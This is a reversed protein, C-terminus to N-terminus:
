NEGILTTAQIQYFGVQQAAFTTAFVFYTFDQEIQFSVATETGPEGRSEVIANGLQDLVALYPVFQPTNLNSDSRMGITVSTGVVAGELAYPESYYNGDFDSDATLEGLLPDSGLPLQLAGGPLRIRPFHFLFQGKSGALDPEMASLEFTYTTGPDAAPVFPVTLSRTGLQGAEVIVEGTQVNIIRLRPSFDEARYHLTTLHGPALTGPDIERVFRPPAPPDTTDAQRRLQGQFYFGDEDRRAFAATFQAAPELQLRMFEGTAPPNPVAPQSPRIYVRERGNGTPIVEITGGTIGEDNWLLLDRSRMLRYTLGTDGSPRSFVFEFPSLQASSFPARRVVPSVQASPIDPDSGYAFEFYNSLGDHDRDENLLPAHFRDIWQAYQPHVHRLIWARHFLISTASSYFGASGCPRAGQSLVGALAWAHPAASRRVVLPGGSDGSCSGLSGDAVGAPLADAGLFVGQVKWLASALEMEVLPLDSQQLQDPREGSGATAGWGFIRGIAGPITSVPDDLLPVCPIDVIPEELRLLALDGVAEGNRSFLYLPHVIIDAVAVRRINIDAISSLDHTGCVVDIDQIRPSAPDIVCHAATIAWYPHILVGGCVFEDRLSDGELADRHRVVATMWPADSAAVAEGGVLAHVVSSGFVIAAAVTSTVFSIRKLLIGQKLLDCDTAPPYARDRRSRM